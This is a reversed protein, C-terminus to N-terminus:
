STLGIHRRERLVILLFVPAGIISTIIGIPIEGPSLATRALTDSLLLLVAGLVASAVLLIRHDPGTLLRVIHPVVLGLFGIIGAVAVSAGVALAAFLIVLRKVREVDFGMARANSEGISFANLPRAFAPLVLVPVVVFPLIGLVVPWTAGGLSGLMWFTITRLQSEDAAYTFVGTISVVLANIAIGALLMTAIHTRGDVRSIRYVTITAVFAGVFAMASLAYPAAGALAGGLTQVGLVIGIVAFLSAGSSIGILGPDALPNRFVGQMVAGSVALGAGVLLALVVRPLRIVHLVARQRQVLEPAVGDPTGGVLLLPVHRAPIGLAGAHLAHVVVLVLVVLLGGLLLYPSIRTM